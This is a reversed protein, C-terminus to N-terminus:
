FIYVPFCLFAIRRCIEGRREIWINRGSLRSSVLEYAFRLIDQSTGPGVVFVEFQGERALRIM